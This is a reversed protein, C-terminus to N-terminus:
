IANPACMPPKKGCVACRRQTGGQGIVHNQSDFRLEPPARHDLSRARGVPRGVALRNAGYRGYYVATV